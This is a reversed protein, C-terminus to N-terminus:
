EAADAEPTHRVHPKRAATVEDLRRVASKTPADLIAQPNSEAEKAIEIMIDIFQDLTAKSETETPEIMIAEDVILPFYVTPPHIGHDILRKALDLTRVGYKEKMGSNDVVFEHMCPRGGYATPYHEALRARIYNANLVANESIARLSRAGHRRLYVYSRLLNGANGYFSRVRGISKPIDAELDFSGDEREVIHPAPLFPRLAETVAIPGAGPGGGGHPITFTKHLNMHMMDAGFDGPRTIGLIANLNAGDVYLLGGRDHVIKAIEVIREEFLGLTNPNTIMFVALDDGAKAELDALDVLGRDDSKVTICDLGAVTASAPNTGHASDPVLVKTRQEDEGKERFHARAVLLATFEGHAGAAPQLSVAPLGTVEALMRELGALLILWGQADAPDAYPHVRAFGPLAALTEHLKPNYKMTCSGLPYFNTDVTFCKQSLRVYHRVLDLEGVEPLAPPAKRRCSEPIMAEVPQGGVDPAPYSVCRRGDRHHEYISPTDYFM